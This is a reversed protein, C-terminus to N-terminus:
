AGHRAGLVTLVVGDGLEVVAGTRVPVEEGDHLRFPAQGPIKVRTGNTSWLDCVLVVEAQMRICAHSRSVTGGEARVVVRRADPERVRETDPDTGFVLSADVAIETEGAQDQLRVAPPRGGAQAPSVTGPSVTRAAGPGEPAPGTAAPAAQGLVPAPQTPDPATPVAPATPEPAPVPQPAPAGSFAEAPSPPVPSAAPIPTPASAIPVFGLVTNEDVAEAATEPTSPPTAEPDRAALLRQLDSGTVTRDDAVGDEIVDHGSGSEPAPVVDPLQTAVRERRRRSRRGEPRAHARRAGGAVPPESAITADFTLSVVDPLVTEADRGTVALEQGDARLVALAAEPPLPFHLTAGDDALCPVAPSSAPVVRVTVPVEFAADCRSLM